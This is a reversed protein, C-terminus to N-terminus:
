KNIRMDEKRYGTDELNQKRRLLLGFKREKGSVSEKLSRQYSCTDIFLEKNKNILNMKNSEIM